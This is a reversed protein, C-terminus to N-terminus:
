FGRRGMGATPASKNKPIQIEIEFFCPIIQNQNKIQKVSFVRM